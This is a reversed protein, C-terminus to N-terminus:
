IFSEIDWFTGEPYKTRNLFIPKSKSFISEGETRKYDKKGEFEELYQNEIEKWPISKRGIANYMKKLYLYDVIHLCVVINFKGERFNILIYGNGGGLHINWLTAEQIDRVRSFAFAQKGKVMKYEMAFFKSQCVALADFFKISAFRNMGYSDPIKM